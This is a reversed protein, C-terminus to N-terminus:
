RRAEVRRADGANEGGTAAGGGVAGDDGAGQADGGQHAGARGHQQQGGTRRQQEVTLAAAQMDVGVGRGQLAGADFAVGTFLAQLGGRRLAM